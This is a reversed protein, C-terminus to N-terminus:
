YLFLNIYHYRISAINEKIIKLWLQKLYGISM